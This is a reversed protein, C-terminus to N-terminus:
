RRASPSSSPRAPRYRRPRVGPATAARKAWARGPLAQRPEGPGPGGGPAVEDPHLAPLHKRAHRLHGPVHGLARGHEGERARRQGAEPRGRVRQRLGAEPHHDVARLLAHPRHRHRAPLEPGPSLDRPCGPNGIAAGRGGRLSAGAGAGAHTDEGREEPRNGAGRLIRIGSLFWAEGPGSMSTMALYHTPWKAKRFAAPWGPEVKEHASGKGPKVSEVFIQLVKPPAQSPAAEQAAAAAPASALCLFAVPALWARHPM